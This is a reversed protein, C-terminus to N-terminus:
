KKWLEDIQKVFDIPKIQNTKDITKIKYNIARELTKTLEKCFEDNNTKETIPIFLENKDLLENFGGTNPAILIKNYALIEFPVLGFDEEFGLFVGAFCESYLKKVTDTNCNTKIEVNYNKSLKILEDLYEKSESTGVIILKYEPYKKEINKWAKILVDQRKPKNLRSVYLFYKKNTNKTNTPFNITDLCYIVKSKNKSILKKNIAREQTLKSNFIAFDIRKWAKKELFNYTKIAFLYMQKKIWSYNRNELNWSIISPTAERLPTHCYAFTKNKKYNRFTIIEAIGSTSILFYDYKELPIKVLGFFVFLGRLFHTRSYKKTFKPSLINVNYNKFESFTNEEDYVWTYLDIKHKSKQLLKLVFNEAGGKSKIWPHFLAIKMNNIIIHYYYLFM